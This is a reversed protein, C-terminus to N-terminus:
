RLECRAVAEDGSIDAGFVSAVLYFVEVNARSHGAATRCAGLWRAVFPEPVSLTVGDIADQEAPGLGSLIEYGGDERMSAIVAVNGGTNDGRDGCVLGAPGSRIRVDTLTRPGGLDMVVCSTVNGTGDAWKFPLAVFEPYDAPRALGTAVEDDHLMGAVDCAPALSPFPAGDLSRALSGEVECRAWTCTICRGGSPGDDCDEGAEVLGDGCGRVCAGDNCGLDGCVRDLGWAGGDEDCRLVRRGDCRTTDPECARPACAPQDSQCVLGAARCDSEHWSLGGDVCVSLVGGRCTSEGPVCVVPQCAGDRCVDRGDACEQVVSYATGNAACAVVQGDTCHPPDDMSCVVPDCAVGVCATGLDCEFREESAGRSDCQLLAAGDSDCTIAGPDCVRSRCRAPASPDCWM